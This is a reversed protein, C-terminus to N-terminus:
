VVRRGVSAERQTRSACWSRKAFPRRRGSGGRRSACAVVHDPLAVSVRELTQAVTEGAQAHGGDRDVIASLNRFAAVVEDRERRAEDREKSAETTKAERIECANRLEALPPLM